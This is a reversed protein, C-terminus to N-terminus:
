ECAPEAKGATVMAYLKIGLLIEIASIVFSIAMVLRM